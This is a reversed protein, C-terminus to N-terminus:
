LEVSKLHLRLHERSVLTAAAIFLTSLQLRKCHSLPTTRLPLLIYATVSHVLIIASHIM